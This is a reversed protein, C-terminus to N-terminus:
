RLKKLHALQMVFVRELERLLRTHGWWMSRLVLVSLSWKNRVSLESNVITVLYDYSLNWFPLCLNGQQGTCFEITWSLKAANQSSAGPHIRRLFLCEPIEIFKGRLSLEALLRYDGGPYSPILRTKSLAATRILGYHCNVWHGGASLVYRLREHKAESQLNWGPDSIDLVQGTEDIFNTKSCALVVTEDKQIVDLCRALHEPLCLDDASAWKFYDGTSLEFVRNFNKGVGINAANRFYRVRHDKAAYKRCIDQTGDTSANDSVILEFDNYTQAL